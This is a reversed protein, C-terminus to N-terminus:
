ILLQKDVPGDRFRMRKVSGNRVVTAREASRDQNTRAYVRLHGAM